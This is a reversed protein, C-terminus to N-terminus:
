IMFRSKLTICVIFYYCIIISRKTSSSKLYKLANGWDWLDWSGAWHGMLNWIQWLWSNWNTAGLRHLITHKAISSPSDPLYKLRRLPSLPRSPFLPIPIPPMPALPPTAGFMLMRIDHQPQMPRTVPRSASLNTNLISGWIFNDVVSLNWVHIWNCLVSPCQRPDEQSPLPNITPLETRPNLQPNDKDEASCLYMHM